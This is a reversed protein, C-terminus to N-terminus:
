MPNAKAPNDLFMRSGNGSNSSAMYSEIAYAFADAENFVALTAPSYCYRGNVDVQSRVLAGAVMSPEDFFCVVKHNADSGAVLEVNILEVGKRECLALNFQGDVVLKGSFDEPLEAKFTFRAARVNNFTNVLVGHSSEYSGAEYQDALGSTNVQIFSLQDGPRLGICALAAAYDAQTEITKDFVAMDVEPLALMNYMVSGKTVGRTVYAPFNLSGEAIVFPYGQIGSVGKLNIIGRVDGDGDALAARIDAAIAKQNLSMFRQLCDRKTHLNEFSHDVISKLASQGASATAFAARQISQAETKPNSVTPQYQGAVTGNQGKRFVTSGVRGKIRGALPSYIKGMTTLNLSRRFDSRRVESGACEQLSPAFTPM